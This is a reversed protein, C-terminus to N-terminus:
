ASLREKASEEPQLRTLDLSWLHMAAYARWPRWTQSHEALQTKSMPKGLAQLARLLGLDTAPFADPEQLARMAIYHATWAGIGPLQCLIQVADDLTQFQRLFQPNQAVARSLSAIAVTRSQPIGLTTLDAEALVEPQPFVFQLETEAWSTGAIASSASLSAGYTRVLRGALKTAAAVSIQQGLIARVALEFSDWAGPIRLGPQMGIVPTLIPDSQLHASIEATNSNLDFMRRLREVIQALLTVKPFYINATLYNHGAVPCVEVIGHHGELAITRRYHALNVSELGPTARPIFFQVFAAWNYPPSFPLKLSIKPTHASDSEDITEKRLSSPSRGYTKYIVDNFRRISRFGAVIAIETMSLATEDILQKAFLLRRTQAVATPTTGLHKAFLNRLHRDGVGLRTALAAVTGEDLAGEAILRLARAVTSTTGIHALLHPSLEPRCRLCPRFGSHQAAAASPFFTCNERKPTTAPCIPRCYIGTTHVAVFFQGDFRLDSTQIARYCVDPDLNWSM